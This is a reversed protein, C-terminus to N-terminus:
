RGFVQLILSCAQAARELSPAQWPKIRLTPGPLGLSRYCEVSWRYANTDSGERNGDVQTHDVFNRSTAIGRGYLTYHPKDLTLGHWVTSASICQEVNVFWDVVFSFPVLKWPLAPDLVGLANLLFLNPNTVRCEARLTYTCMGNVQDRTIVQTSSDAQFASTVAGISESSGARVKRPSPDSCLINWSSEIDSILPKWGYEYELFNGSLGKGYSVKKPKPVALARAVGRYDRKAIGLVVAAMQVMRDNFMERAQALQALNEAWGARDTVKSAFRAHARNYASPLRWAMDWHTTLNFITSKYPVISHVGNIDWYSGTVLGFNEYYSYELPRDFPRKQKYGVQRCTTFPHSPFKVYPGTIPNVM